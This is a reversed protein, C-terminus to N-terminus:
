IDYPFDVAQDAKVEESPKFPQLPKTNNNEKKTEKENDAANKEGAGDGPPTGTRNTEEDTSHNDALIFGHLPAGAEAKSGYASPSWFDSIARGAFGPPQWLFGPLLLPLTLLCKKMM